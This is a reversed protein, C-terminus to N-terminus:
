PKSPPPPAHRQSQPLSPAAQETRSRMVIILGTVATITGPVAGILAAIIGSWDFGSSPVLTPGSPNTRGTYVLLAVIVGTLLILAGLTLLLFGRRRHRKAAQETTRPIASM